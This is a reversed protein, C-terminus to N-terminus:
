AAGLAVAIDDPLEEFDDGIRVKDRWLGKISALSQGDHGDAASGECTEVMLAAFRDKAWEM